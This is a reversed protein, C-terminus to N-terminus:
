VDFRVWGATGQGRVIITVSGYPMEYLAQSVGRHFTVQRTQKRGANWIEVLATVGSTFYTHPPPLMVKGSKGADAILTSTIWAPFDKEVSVLQAQEETEDSAPAPDTGALKGLAATYEQLTRHAAGLERLATRAEDRERTLEGADKIAAALAAELLEPSITAAEKEVIAATVGGDMDDGGMPQEFANRIADTPIPGITVEEAGKTCTIWTGDLRQTITLADGDTDTLETTKM